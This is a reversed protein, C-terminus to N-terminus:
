DITSNFLDDKLLKRSALPIAPNELVERYLALLDRHFPRPPAEVRDKAAVGLSLRMRTVIHQYKSLEMEGGGHKTVAVVAGILADPNRSQNIERLMALLGADIETRSEVLNNFRRKEWYGLAEVAKSDRFNMGQYADAFTMENASHRGIKRNLLTLQATFAEPTLQGSGMEARACGICGLLRQVLGPRLDSGGSGVDRGQLTGVPQLPVNESAGASRPTGPPTGGPSNTGFTSM